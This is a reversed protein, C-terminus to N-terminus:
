FQRLQLDPQPFIHLIHLTPDLGFLKVLELFGQGDIAVGKRLLFSAILLDFRGLARELLSELRTATCLEVSGGIDPAVFRLFVRGIMEVHIAAEPVELLEELLLEILLNDLLSLALIDGTGPQSPLFLHLLRPWFWEM